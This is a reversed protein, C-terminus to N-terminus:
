YQKQINTNKIEQDSRYYWYSDKKRDIKENLFDKGTLKALLAIPTLIFYFIITLLLRTSIFGLIISFGMWIKHVPFLLIPLLVGTAILLGGIIFLVQYFNGSIIYLVAGLIVIFIGVTLGFKKLEKKSSNINKFEDLM